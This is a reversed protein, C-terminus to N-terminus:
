DIFPLDDLQDEIAVMSFDKPKARRGVGFLWPRAAVLGAGVASRMSQFVLPM